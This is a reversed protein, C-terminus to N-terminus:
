GRAAWVNLAPILHRCQMHLANKFLMKFYTKTAKPWPAFRNQQTEFIELMFLAMGFYCGFFESQRPSNPLWINEISFVRSINRFYTDNSLFTGEVSLM